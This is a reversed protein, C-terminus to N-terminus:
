AVAPVSAKKRRQLLLQVLAILQSTTWYLVLASPMPYFLFLFMIPMLMMMKQQQPDGASPTLKQQWITLGTMVLPLINLPIPLVGALLGEQESLDSIWLFSAFRLEVASRLVTFLAFFVPIQILLPLCGAMPNVKHEKYLAMTAQNLKTPNDKYKAQLKKVEPQIAQMRKMSETSKHTIPWFIMRVIITLVIIALGYNRLVSHIANLSVLLIRSLPSWFGFEMIEEYSKGLDKLQSYEKPGVYCSYERVVPETGSVVVPKFVMKASVEEIVPTQVWTASNSPNEIEPVERKVELVAGDSGGAPSLISVFFKNKVAIWLMPDEKVVEATPPLISMLKPKFMSCGGQRPPPQFRDELTLKKTRGDDTVDKIKSWHSVDGGAGVQCSDISIYTMGKVASKSMVKTMSGAQLSYAPVTQPGQTDGSFADRVSINYSDGIEITRTLSVPGDSSRLVINSATSSVLTFDASTGWKAVGGISLAPAGTFDFSVPDSNEDLTERYGLLRVNKVCAGWTSVTVEMHENILTLLQEEEKHMVSSDSASPEPDKVEPLFVKQEPVKEDSVNAAEGPVPRSDDIIEEPVTGSPPVEVPPRAPQLKFWAILVVFLLM